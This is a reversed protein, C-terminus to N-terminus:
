TTVTLRYSRAARAGLRDIAELRFRYSGPARPTGVLTGTADLKLWVPLAGSAVRWRKPAVGGTTRIKAQYPSGVRVKRLVLTTITLREAIRLNTPVTARQGVRDTVLFTVGFNGAKEPAGSIAGTEANLTLGAPLSGVEVGYKLPPVGGAGSVKGAYGVGVEGPGISSTASLAGAVMLTLEKEGSRRFPERARVTFTKTDAGTPTGSIVGTGSLTLGGPLSGKVIDWVVPWGAEPNSFTLQTNYPRGPIAVPLSTTTVALDPMVIMTFDGQSPTGAELCYPNTPGGNDTLEVWFYFTGAQTPTGELEGQPTVRLGPPLTGALHKFTYPVCGEEGEFEFEYPTGVEGPHPQKDVDIDLGSASAAFVLPLAVLALLLALRIPRV